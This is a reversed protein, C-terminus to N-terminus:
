VATNKLLGLLILSRLEEIMLVNYFSFHKERKDSEIAYILDYMTTQKIQSQNKLMEFKNESRGQGQPSPMNSIQSIMSKREEEENMMISKRQDVLINKQLPSFNFIYVDVVAM